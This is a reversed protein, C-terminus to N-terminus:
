FSSGYDSESKGGVDTGRRAAYKDQASKGGSPKQKRNGDKPKTELRRTLWKYFHDKFDALDKHLHQVTSTYGFFEELMKLTDEISLSHNKATNEIFFQSAKVEEFLNQECEDLSILPNNNINNNEETTVALTVGQDQESAENRDSELTTKQRPNESSFGNNTAGTEAVREESMNPRLPLLQYKDYNSITIITVNGSRRRTIMENDELMRLFDLVTTTNTHWLAMLQRTSTLIQGRNLRITRKGLAVDRDKWEALFILDLWRRAYFYNRWVWHNRISRHIAIWGEM